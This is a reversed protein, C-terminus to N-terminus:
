GCRNPLKCILAPEARMLESTLLSDWSMLFSGYVPNRMKNHIIKFCVLSSNVRVLKEDVFSNYNCSVMELQSNRGEKRGGKRDIKCGKEEM